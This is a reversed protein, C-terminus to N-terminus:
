FAYQVGLTFQPIEGIFRAEVNILFDGGPFDVLPYIHVGLLLRFPTQTELDVQASPGDSDITVDSHHFVGGAYFQFAGFRRTGVGLTLDIEQWEGDRAEGVSDDDNSTFRLYQASLGFTGLTFSFLRLRVGGGFALGFGGNFLDEDVKFEAMGGRAFIESWDTLGFAVTVLARGTEVEADVSNKLDEKFSDGVLEFRFHRAQLRAAPFGVTGAQVPTVVWGLALAVCGSFFWQRLHM